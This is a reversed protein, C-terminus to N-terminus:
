GANSPGQIDLGAACAETRTWPLGLLAKGLLCSRAQVKVFYTPVQPEREAFEVHRLRVEGSLMGIAVPRGNSVAIIKDWTRFAFYM